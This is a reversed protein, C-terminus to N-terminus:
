DNNKENSFVYMKGIGKNKSETLTFGEKTFIPMYDEFKRYKQYKEDSDTYYICRIAALIKLKKLRSHILKKKYQKDEFPNEAWTFIFIRKQSYYAINELINQYVKDDM